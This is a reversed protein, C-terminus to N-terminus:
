TSVGHVLGSNPSIINVTFFENLM